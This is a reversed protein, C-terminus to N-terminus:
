KTNLKKNYEEVAKIFSSCNVCLPDSCINGIQLDTLGNTRCGTIIKFERKNDFEKFATDILTTLEEKTIKNYIKGM